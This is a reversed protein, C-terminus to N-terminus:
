KTEFLRKQCTVVHKKLGAAPTFHCKSKAIVNLYVGLYFRMVNSDHPRSELVKQNNEPVRYLGISARVANAGQYSIKIYM